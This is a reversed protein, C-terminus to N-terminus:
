RKSILNNYLCDETKMYGLKQVIQIFVLAYLVRLRVTNSLYIINKEDFKYSNYM